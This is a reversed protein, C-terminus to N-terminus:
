NTNSSNKRYYFEKMEPFEELLKEDINRTDGVVKAPQGRLISYDEFTGEVFSYASVICGKGIITGPMIVSHAGIFSYDGIKVPGWELGKLKTGWYLDYKDGYMRIANHSSHTLISVYNTIQCGTGIEVKDFGDIYNFHGIFVHDGTKVNAPNSLHTMNSIRMKKLNGPESNSYGIMEPRVLKLFEYQLKNKIRAFFGM